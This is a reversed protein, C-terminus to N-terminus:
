GLTLSIFLDYRIYDSMCLAGMRVGDSGRGGFYDMARVLPPSCNALFLVQLDQLDDFQDVERFAASYCELAKAHYMMQAHLYESFMKQLVCGDSDVFYYDCIITGRGVHERSLGIYCVGRKFIFFNFLIFDLTM